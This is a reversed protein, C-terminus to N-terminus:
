QGDIPLAKHEKTMEYMVVQGHGQGRFIQKLDTLHTVAIWDMRKETLYRLIYYLGVAGEAYATTQFIENLILLSGAPMSEIIAHLEQVEQYMNLHM